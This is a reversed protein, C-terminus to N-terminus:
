PVLPSDGQGDKVHVIHPLSWAFVSSPVVAATVVVALLAVMVGRKGLRVVRSVSSTRM